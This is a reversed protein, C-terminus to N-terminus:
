WVEVLYTFYRGNDVHSFDGFREGPMFLIPRFEIRLFDGLMEIPLFPDTVNKM